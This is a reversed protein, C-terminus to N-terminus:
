ITYPPTLLGAQVVDGYSQVSLCLAALNGKVVALAAKVDPDTDRVDSFVDSQLIDCASTYLEFAVM